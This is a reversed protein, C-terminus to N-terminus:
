FLSLRPANHLLTFYVESNNTTAQHTAFEGACCCAPAVQEILIDYWADDANAIGIRGHETPESTVNIRDSNGCLVVVLQKAGRQNIRNIASYRVIEMFLEIYVNYLGSFVQETFLRETDVFGGIGVNEGCNM